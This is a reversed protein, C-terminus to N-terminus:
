LVRRYSDAIGHHAEDVVVKDIAEWHFRELRKTGARGLTQVSASIIDSNPDAYVGAMEIGIKLQPNILAAKDANQKVIEETHSLILMQGSLRSKMAEYLKSFIVTKGVGTAAVVLQRHTGADYEKVVTDICEHQYSRLEM